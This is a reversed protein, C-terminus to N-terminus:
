SFAHDTAEAKDLKHFLEWATDALYFFPHGDETMLFRKNEHIKLRPLKQFDAAVAIHTCLLLSLLTRM